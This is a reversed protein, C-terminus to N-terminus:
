INVLKPGTNVLSIDTNAYNAGETTKSQQIIQKKAKISKTIVCAEGHLPSKAAAICKNYMIKITHLHQKKILLEM